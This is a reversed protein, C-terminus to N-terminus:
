RPKFPPTKGAGRLLGLKSRQLNVVLDNELCHEAVVMGEYCEEGPNVFFVGRQQLGDIAFPVAPGKGQSILFGM